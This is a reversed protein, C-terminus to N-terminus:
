APPFFTLGRVEDYADAVSTKPWARARALNRRLREEAPLGNVLWGELRGQQVRRVGNPLLWAVGLLALVAAHAEIRWRLEGDVGGRESLYGELFTGVDEGALLDEQNPHVVLDALDVAPDDLGGDEWDIMGVRGDPRDVFNAFRADSRCFRLPGDYAAAEAHLRRM